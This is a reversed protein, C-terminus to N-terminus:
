PSVGLIITDGSSVRTGGGPTQTVVRGSRLGGADPWTEERLRFGAARVLRRAEGISRGTLVPMVYYQDAPGLSVLVDVAPDSETEGPSPDQFLVTGPEGDPTHAYLTNGAMLGREVLQLQASRLSAGRIEPVAFEREGLSVRVRVRRDQKVKSGAVPSQELVRGRPVVPSFRRSDVEMGLGATVLSREAESEGLGSLDPVEVERGQIALRMATVASLTGAAFLVFAMLALAPVRAWLGDKRTASQEVSERGAGDGDRYM